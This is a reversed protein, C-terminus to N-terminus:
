SSNSINKTGQTGKVDELIKVIVLVNPYILVWKENKLLLYTKGIYNPFATKM